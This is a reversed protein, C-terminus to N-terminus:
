QKASELKELRARHADQTARLGALDARLDMLLWLIPVLLVNLWELAPATM